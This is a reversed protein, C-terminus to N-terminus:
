LPDACAGIGFVASFIQQADGASFTGDDNCDAACAEQETPIHMGMVIYFALQADGASLEGNGDVDGHHLCPQTVNVWIPNTFARYQYDYSMPDYGPISPDGPEDPGFDPDYTYAVARLYFDPGPDYDEYLPEILDAMLLSLDVDHMGNVPSFQYILDPSEGTTEDGRFVRIMRVPGYDESSIWELYLRADPHDDALDVTDSIKGDCEGYSAATGDLSIGTTMFPGDTVVVSGAFASDLVNSNTLGDPCYVGSRIKGLANPFATYLLDRKFVDWDIKYNMSGHADSGGMFFLQYRPENLMESLIRDWRDLCTMITADWQTDVSEWNGTHPPDGWPHIVDESLYPNRENYDEMGRFCDHLMADRILQDTWVMGSDLTHAGYTFGSQSCIEPVTVLVEPESNYTEIWDSLGFAIMHHADSLQYGDDCEEGALAAFVGPISGAACESVVTQWKTDTLSFGHDTVLQWDLGCTQMAQFMATGSAGIEAFFYTSWSHTHPDGLYWDDLVPLAAKGLYIKLDQDEIDTWNLSEEYIMRVTLTICTGLDFETYGMNRPTLLTGDPQTGGMSGDNKFSTVTMHYMGTDAQYLECGGCEAKYIQAAHDPTFEYDGWFDEVPEPPVAGTSVDYIGICHLENLADADTGEIQLYVFLPDDLSSVRWPADFAFTKAYDNPYDWHNGDKIPGSPNFSVQKFDFECGPTTCDRDSDGTATSLPSLILGLFGSVFLISLVTKHM